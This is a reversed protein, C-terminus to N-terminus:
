IKIHVIIGGSYWKYRRAIKQEREQNIFVTFNAINIDPVDGKWPGLLFHIDHKINEM